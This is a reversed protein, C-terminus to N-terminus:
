NGEKVESVTFRRYTSTKSYLDYLGAKKLADTDLRTSMVPKWSVLHRGVRGLTHDKMQAKLKNAAEDKAAKWDKEMQQARLFEGLVADAGILHIEDNTVNEAPFLANLVNTSSDTGDMAPPTRNEVLTWFDRGIEILHKIIEEDRAIEKHKFANGGILVAIWWSEYGTVAMYWQCQLMYMDPVKGDEWNDKGYASTTKCELGANQGVIRRDINALMWHNEPHQLIANRRAVKLGTRRSFEDAVISELTKGWYMAENEEQDPIDGIKELYVAMPSRWPSLGAIAAIDSGGLGRRRADLWDRHSLDKTMMMVQTAM